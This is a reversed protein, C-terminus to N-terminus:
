EQKEKFKTVINYMSLRRVEENKKIFKYLSGLNVGELIENNESLNGTIEPFDERIKALTMPLKKKQGGKKGSESRARKIDFTKKFINFAGQLNDPLNAPMVGNFMYECIAKIYIGANNNNTMSRIMNAYNKCFTFHKMKRNLYHPTKGSKEIESAKQLTPLIAEWLVNSLDDKSPIDEKEYVAYNCIRKIFIGAENESLQQIADYYLDYFTFEEM